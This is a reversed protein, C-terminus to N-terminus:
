DTLWLYKNLVHQTAWSQTHCLLFLVLCSMSEEKLFHVPMGPLYQSNLELGGCHLGVIFCTRIKRSIKNEIQFFYM